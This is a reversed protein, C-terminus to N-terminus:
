NIYNVIYSCIFLLDFSRLYNMIFCDYNCVLFISKTSQVKLCTNGVYNENYKKNM